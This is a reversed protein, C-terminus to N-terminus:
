THLVNETLRHLIAFIEYVSKLRLYLSIYEKLQNTAFTFLSTNEINNFIFLFLSIYMFSLCPSTSFSDVM